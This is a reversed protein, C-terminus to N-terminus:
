IEKEKRILKSLQGIKPVACVQNQLVFHVGLEPNKLYIQHLQALEHAIQHLKAGPDIRFGLVYGGSNISSEM